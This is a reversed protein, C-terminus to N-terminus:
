QGVIGFGVMVSLLAKVRLVNLDDFGLTKEVRELRLIDRFVVVVTGFGGGDGSSTVKAESFPSCGLRGSAESDSSLALSSSCSGGDDFLFNCLEHLFVFFCSIQSSSCVLM